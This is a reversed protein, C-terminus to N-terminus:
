LLCIIAQIIVTKYVSLKFFSFFTSEKTDQDDTMVDIMEQDDQVQHVDTAGSPILVTGLFTAASGVSTADCAQILDVVVM